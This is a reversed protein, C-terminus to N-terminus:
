GIRKSAIGSPVSALGATNVAIVAFYWTGATLNEVMYTNVSSNEVEISQDLDDADLGYLIKYGALDTLTTGDSNLTPPTWSLTASGIGVAAVTISFPGLSATATGDSVTITIGSYTGVDGAGPTGTLRGNSSSFSAWSPVNVATFSLSDGNADSASPQFSYSQGALVSSGPQGTVTPATNGTAGQSPSTSSSAAATSEGDDDGGCGVLLVIFIAAVSVRLRAWANLSDM